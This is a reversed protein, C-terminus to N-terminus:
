SAFLERGGGSGGSPRHSQVVDTLRQQEESVDQRQDDGSNVGAM